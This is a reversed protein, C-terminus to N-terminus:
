KNSSHAKEKVKIDGVRFAVCTTHDFKGPYKVYDKPQKAGPNAQMFERCLTTIEFCYQILDNVITEPTVQSRKNIISAMANVRYQNQIKEAKSILFGNIFQEQLELEKWSEEQIGFDMPTKGLQRPDFNDHVGDSVVFCIDGENVSYFYVRMNRLDPSGQGTFPGLRGGPDSADTVKGRNGETIDTVEGTKHNWHFAKCDGVSLFIFGWKPIQENDPELELLVGGLLTTTGAQWIDNEYGKIIANHAAEASGTLHSAINNTLKFDDSNEDLFEIFAKSARIAAQQPRVGWNCGDAICVYIRDTHVKVHYHDCIPDGDRKNPPTVIPYTSISNCYIYDPLFNNDTQTDPGDLTFLHVTPKEKVSLSKINFANKSVSRNAPHKDLVWNFSSGRAIKNLRQVDYQSSTVEHEYRSKSFNLQSM